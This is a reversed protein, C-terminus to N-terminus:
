FVNLKNKKDIQAVLLHFSNTGIDIAAIVPNSLKM